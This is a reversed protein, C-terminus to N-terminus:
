LLEEFIDLVRRYIQHRSGERQDGLPAPEDDLQERRASPTPISERGAAPSRGQLVRGASGAAPAGHRRVLRARLSQDFSGPEERLEFAVAGNEREFSFGNATRKPSGLKLQGAFWASLLLATSRYDPAHSIIVRDLKQLVAINEPYDFMQAM